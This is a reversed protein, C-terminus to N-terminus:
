DVLGLSKLTDIVGNRNNDFRTKFKSIRIIEQHANAMAYSNTAARMMEEDNLYDGFVITEADTIGLKQQMKTLATGKNAGLPMIDMWIKGSVAVKYDKEFPKYFPYANKESGALDCITFKLIDADVKALDDVVELKEYYSRAEKLFREDTAKEIYATETGCTMLNLGPIQRGVEVFKAVAGKDLPHSFILENKYVVYTGNEAIFLLDEKIRDFIHALTHYQRGSAVAFLIGKQRLQEVVEWIDDPLKLTDDLLTGDMDTVILKTM